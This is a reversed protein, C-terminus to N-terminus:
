AKPITDVIPIQTGDAIFRYVEFRRFRIALTAGDVFFAVAIFDAFFNAPFSRWFRRLIIKGERRRLHMHRWSFGPRTPM